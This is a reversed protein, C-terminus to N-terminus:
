GSGLDRWRPLAHLAVSVHDGRLGPVLVAFLLVSTLNLDHRIIGEAQVWNWSSFLDEPGRRKSLAAFTM